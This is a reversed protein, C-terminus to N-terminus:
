CCNNSVPQVVSQSSVRGLQVVPAGGLLEAAAIDVIEAAEARLLAAHLVEAAAGRLLAGAAARISRGRSRDM